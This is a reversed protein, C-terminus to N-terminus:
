PRGWCSSIDSALSREQVKNPNCRRRRYHPLPPTPTPPRTDARTHTPSHMPPLPTTATNTNTPPHGRAHTYTLAHPRSHHMRAFLRIETPHSPSLAFQSSLAHTKALPYQRCAFLRSSNTAQRIFSHALPLLTLSQTPQQQTPHLHPRCVCEAALHMPTKGDLEAGHSPDAGSAVLKLAVAPDSADHLPTWGNKDKCM